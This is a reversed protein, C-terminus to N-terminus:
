TIGPIRPPRVSRSLQDQQTLPMVGGDMFATDGDRAIPITPHEVFGLSLGALRPDAVLIQGPMKVERQAPLPGSMILRSRHIAELM